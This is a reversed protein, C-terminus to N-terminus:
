EIDKINILGARMGTIVAQTRSSVKLKIFIEALYGKITRVSLQLKDAIDKNSFGLATLHLIELERSSLKESTDLNLPKRPYRIAYKILKQSVIQSLVTEGALVGRIAHILDDGLIDKTLYAAAGAELVGLIYESDDHVTLVIIVTEPHNAKIHQTAELGSLKPMGMDMIILDPALESAKQVAEEGDSAEAIIHFDPQKELVDRVAHRLLPHDDALLITVINQDACDM